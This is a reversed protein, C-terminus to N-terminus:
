CYKTEIEHLQRLIEEQNPIKGSQQHAHFEMEFEELDTQIASRASESLRDIFLVGQLHDNEHQVIRALFGDVVEDIENGQADYAAVRITDPRVVKANISPISLCGEESEGKGKPSSLVPNIFVREQGEGARGAANVVFLQLPLAVQNAALGVGEHQYMLDFMQRIIDLLARDVRRIPKSPYRLAPHPYYVIDM